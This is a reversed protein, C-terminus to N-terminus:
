TMFLFMIVSRTVARFSVPAPRVKIEGHQRPIASARFPLFVEAVLGELPLGLSRYDRLQDIDLIKKLEEERVNTISEWETNMRVSKETEKVIVRLRKETEIGFITMTCSMQLRDLELVEALFELYDELWINVSRSEFETRAARLAKKQRATLDAPLGAEFEWRNARIGDWLSLFSQRYKEASYRGYTEAVNESERSILPRLRQLDSSTLKYARKLRSELTPSNSWEGAQAHAAVFFASTLSVFIALVLNRRLNILM